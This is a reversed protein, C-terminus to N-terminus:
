PTGGRIVRPPQPASSLPVPTGPIRQPAVPPLEPGGTTGWRSPKAPRDTAFEKSTVLGAREALSKALEYNSNGGDAVVFRLSPTWYFGQPPQGWDRAQLDLVTVLREFTEQKSEGEGMRIAHKGAIVLRQSEVDVSVERELGIAADPASLGWRKRTFQEPELPKNSAPKNKSRRDQVAVPSPGTSGLGIDLQSEGGAQGGAAGPPSGSDDADELREIGSAAKPASGAEARGAQTASGEPGRGM